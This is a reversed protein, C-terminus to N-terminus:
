KLETKVIPNAYMSSVKKLRDRVERNHLIYTKTVEKMFNEQSDRTSIQGNREQHLFQNLISQLFFDSSGTDSLSEEILWRLSPIVEMKQLKEELTQHTNISLHRGQLSALESHNEKEKM